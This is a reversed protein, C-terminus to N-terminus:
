YDKKSDTKKMSTAVVGCCWNNATGISSMSSSSLPQHKKRSTRGACPICSSLPLGSSQSAEDSMPSCFDSKASSGRTLQHEAVCAAAAGVNGATLGKWGRELGLLSTLEDEDDEEAEATEAEM